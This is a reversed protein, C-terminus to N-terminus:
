DDYCHPFLKNWVDKCAITDAISTHPIGEGWSIELEQMADKLSMHLMDPDHEHAFRVFEAACDLTKSKLQRREEETDYIYKIHSYDTSVGYGIVADAGAFLRKIEPILDDLRPANVVMAPTIGHIKETRPWKKKRLPKVLTDMLIKGAGDCISISIIEDHTYVDTLELDFFLTRERKMHKYENRYEDGVQRRAALDKEFCDRCLKNRYRENQHCRVCPLPKGNATKIDYFYIIQQDHGVTYAVPEEEVTYNKSELKEKTYYGLSAARRISMREVTTGSQLVMKDKRAKPFFWQEPDAETVRSPDFYYTISGDENMHYAVPNGVPKLHMQALMARSIYKNKKAEEQSISPIQAGNRLRKKQKEM